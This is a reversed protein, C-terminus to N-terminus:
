KVSYGRGELCASIARRYNYAKHAMEAAQRREQESMMEESRQERSADSASGIMAGTIGGFIAGAGADDDGSLAAGLVAGAIAGIATGTGSPPGSVVVRDYSPVNPASPDFGTQHVAWLACEYRDRSQQQAPQGHEPYAYVTTNPPPGRYAMPRPPPATACGALGLALVAVAAIGARGRLGPSEQLLKFYMTKGYLLGTGQCFTPAFRPNVVEGGQLQSATRVRSTGTRGPM